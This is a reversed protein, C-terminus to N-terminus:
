SSMLKLEEKTYKNITLICERGKKLKTLFDNEKYDMYDKYKTNQYYSYLKNCNKNYYFFKM